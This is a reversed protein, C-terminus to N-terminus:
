SRGCGPLFSSPWGAVMSVVEQSRRVRRYEPTDLETCSRGKVEQLGRQYKVQRHSVSCSPVRSEPQTHTNTHTKGLQHEGPKTQSARARTHTRPQPGETGEAQIEGAASILAETIRSKSLMSAVPHHQTSRTRRRVSSINEQNRRVREMEPTDTVATGSGVEERYQVQASLVYASTSKLLAYLDSTTAVLSM